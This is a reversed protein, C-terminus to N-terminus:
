PAKGGIRDMHKYYNSEKQKNMLEKLEERTM